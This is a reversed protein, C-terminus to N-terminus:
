NGTNTRIPDSFNSWPGEGAKNYAAVAFRYSTKAELKESFTYSTTAQQVLQTAYHDTSFSLIVFKISYGIIRHGGNSDPATWKLSVSTGKVKVAVPVGPQGPPNGVSVSRISYLRVSVCV